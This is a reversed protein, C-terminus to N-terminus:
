RHELQIRARTVWYRARQADFETRDIETDRGPEHLGLTRHETETYEDLSSMPGYTRHHLNIPAGDAGIPPRGNLMRRYNADTQPFIRNRQVGPPPDDNHRGEYGPDTITQGSPGKVGRPQQVVQLNVPPGQQGAAVRELQRQSTKLADRANKARNTQTVANKRADSLDTKRRTLTREQRVAAKQAREAAERKATVAKAAPSGRKAGVAETRADTEDARARGAAERARELMKQAGDVASEAQAVKRSALGVRETATKVAGEREAVVGEQRVVAVDRAPADATGTTEPLLLQPQPAAGTAGVQDVAWPDPKPTPANEAHPQVEAVPDTDPPPAGPEDVRFAEAVFPLAVDGLSGIAAGVEGGKLPDHGTAKAITAGIVRGTLSVPGGEKVGEMKALTVRTEARREELKLYKQETTIVSADALETEVLTHGPDNQAGVEAAIYAEAAKLVNDHYGTVTPPGLGYKHLALLDRAPLRKLIDAVKYRGYGHQIFMDRLGLIRYSREADEKARRATEAAADKERIRRDLEAEATVPALDLPRAINVFLDDEPHAVSEAPAEADDGAEDSPTRQPESAPRRRDAEATLQNLWRADYNRGPYHPTRLQGTLRAIETGLEVDNFASEYSRADIDGPARDLERKRRDSDVDDRAIAPPAGGPLSAPMRAPEGSIGMRSAADAHLEFRDGSRSIGPEVRRARMQQVVHALEHAILVRGEISDPRFADAGFVIEREMAFARAGILRAAREADPGTRVGVDSLDAGYAREFRRRVVADLPRRSAHVAAARAQDATTQPAAAAPAQVTAFTTGGPSAV